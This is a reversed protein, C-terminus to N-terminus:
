LMTSFPWGFESLAQGVEAYNDIALREVGRANRGQENLVDRLVHAVPEVGLSQLMHSWSDLSMLFASEDDTSEYGLLDETKWTTHEGRQWGGFDRLIDALQGPTSTQEQLVHLLMSTNLWVRPQQEEPLSRRSFCADTNNGVLKAELAVESATASNM